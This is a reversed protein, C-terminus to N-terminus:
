KEAKDEQQELFILNPQSVTSMRVFKSFKSFQGKSLSCLLWLGASLLQQFSFLLFVIWRLHFGQSFSASPSTAPQRSFGGPLWSWVSVEARNVCARM